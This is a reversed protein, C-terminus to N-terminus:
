EEIFKRDDSMKKAVKLFDQELMGYIQTLEKTELVQVCKYNNPVLNNKEIFPIIKATDTFTDAIEITANEVEANDLNVVMLLVETSKIERTVKRVRAM